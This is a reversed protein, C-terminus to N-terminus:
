ALFRVLTYVALVAVALGVVLDTWTALTEKANKDKKAVHMLGAILLFLGGALGVPLAWGPVLAFLGAFGMALNATGLEATLQREAGTTATAGLIQATSARGSVQVIGALFLRTGVGWFVFWKGFVLVPDGGVVALEIVGSVIPLVVTQLLVVIFYGM